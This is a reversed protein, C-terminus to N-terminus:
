IESVFELLIDLEQRRGDAYLRFGQWTQTKLFKGLLLRPEIQIALKFM